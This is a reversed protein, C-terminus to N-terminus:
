VPQIIQSKVIVDAHGETRSVPRENNIISSIETLITQNHNESYLLEFDIVKQLEVSHDGIRYSSTPTALSVVQQPLPLKKERTSGAPPLDNNQNAEETTSAEARDPIITEQQELIERTQYTGDVGSASDTSKITKRVTAAPPSFQNVMSLNPNLDKQSMKAQKIM